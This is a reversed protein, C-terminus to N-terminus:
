ESIVRRIGCRRLARHIVRLGDVAHDGWHSEFHFKWSWIADLRRGAQWQLLGRKLDLYVDLVDDSLTSAVREEDEYPDFVEWYLEVDGFGPWTKPVAVACESTNEEPEVKPLELAAAYLASLHTAVARLREALSEKGSGEVFSCFDRAAEAFHLAPIAMEPAVRVLAAQVNLTQISVALSDVQEHLEARKKAIDGHDGGIVRCEAGFRRAEKAVSLGRGRRTPIAIFEATELHRDLLGKAEALGVHLERRLLRVFSIRHQDEAWLGLVVVTEDRKELDGEM